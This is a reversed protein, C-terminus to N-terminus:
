NTAKWKLKCLERKCKKYSLHLPSLSRWSKNIMFSWKIKHNPHESDLIMYAIVKALGDLREKDQTEM